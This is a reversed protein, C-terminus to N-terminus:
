INDAKRQRGQQEDLPRPVPRRRKLLVGTVAAWKDEDDALSEPADWIFRLFPDGVVEEPYNGDHSHEAAPAPAPAAPAPSPAAADVLVPEGGDLISRFSGRRWGLRDELPIIVRDTYDRGRGTEIKNVVSLSPGGEAALSAQSGFGLEIRRQRVMQGLRRWAAPPHGPMDEDLGDLENM